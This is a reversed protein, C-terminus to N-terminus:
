FILNLWDPEPTKLLKRISDRLLDEVFWVDEPSLTYNLGHVIKSRLKYSEKIKSFLQKRKKKRNSLLISARHAMKYTFEGMGDGRLYLAELGIMYDIIKDELKIREYGDTFRNLAIGLPTKSEKKEWAIDTFGKHFDKLMALESRALFYPRERSRSGKISSFHTAIHRGKKVDFIIHIYGEKFLRLALIVKEMEENVANSAQIMAEKSDAVDYHYDVWYREEGLAIAIEFTENISSFKSKPSLLFDELEKKPIKTIKLTRDEYGLDLEDIDSAFGDLLAIYRLLM